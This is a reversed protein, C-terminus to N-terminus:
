DVYFSFASLIIISNFSNFALTLASYVDDEDVTFCRASDRRHYSLKKNNYLAPIDMTPHMWLNTQTPETQCNIPPQM